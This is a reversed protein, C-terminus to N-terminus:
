STSGHLRWLSLAAAAAAAAAAAESDATAAADDASNTLHEDAMSWCWAAKGGSIMWRPTPGRSWWLMSQFARRCAATHDRLLHQRGPYQSAAPWRLIDTDCHWQTCWGNGPLLHIEFHQQHELCKTVIMAVVVPMKCQRQCCTKSVVHMAHCKGASCPENGASHSRKQWM